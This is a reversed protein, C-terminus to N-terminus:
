SSDPPPFLRLAPLSARWCAASFLSLQIAFGRLHLLAECFSNAEHHPEQQYRAPGPAGLIDLLNLGGAVHGVEGSDNLRLCFGLQLRQARFELLFGARLHGDDRHLREIAIVDLAVRASEELLE